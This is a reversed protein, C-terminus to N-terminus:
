RGPTSEGVLHSRFRPRHAQYRQRGSQVTNPRVRMPDGTVWDAATDPPDAFLALRKRGAQPLMTEVTGAVLQNMSFPLAEIDM